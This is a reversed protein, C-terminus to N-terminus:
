VKFSPRPIRFLALLFEYVTDDVQKLAIPLVFWCMWVEAAILAVAAGLNGYSHILVWALALSLSTGLLYALAMRSHVNTSMPVVSSTLWLSNALVSILLAGFCAQDFVVTGRVWGAYVSPGIIWLLIGSLLSLALGAQCAYRHLRRALAINGAGFASSLEPWVARAVVTLLQCSVRTLTRMTSFAVVSTPGLAAGIAVTFGQFSLANGVPMAIFGLAPALLSHISKARAQSFGLTLWPSLRHLLLGYAVTGLTRIALYALAVAILDGGYVLGAATAVAAEVLRLVSNWLMGSAFHNDCRYGGELIGTQQAVLVYLGLILMVASADFSSISSLRLWAKWPISWITISVVLLMLVSVVTLLLWSSQFTELAGKRDGAAVRVTMDSGSATGFGMNSLSLYSPLASLLLWDGYKAAGWSHLLIPVPGLQIFATVIPDLATAGLSRILRRQLAASPDAESSQLSPPCPLHIV